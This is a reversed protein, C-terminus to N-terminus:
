LRTLSGMEGSVGAFHDCVNRYDAGGDTQDGFVHSQQVEDDTALGVNATQSQESDSLEKRSKM